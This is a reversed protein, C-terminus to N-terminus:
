PIKGRFIKVLEKKLIISKERYGSSDYLKLALENHAFVHLEVTGIGQGRAWDEARDLLMRGLGRGRSEPAVEIDYIWAYRGDEELREVESREQTGVWIVGAFRGGEDEAVFIRYSPDHLDYRSMLRRYKERLVGEPAEVGHFVGAKFTEFGLKLLKEIDQESEMERIRFAMETGTNALSGVKLDKQDSGKRTSPNKYSKSSM